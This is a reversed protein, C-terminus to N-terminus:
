FDACKTHQHYLHSEPYYPFFKQCPLPISEPTFPLRIDALILPFPIIDNGKFKTFINYLNKAALM